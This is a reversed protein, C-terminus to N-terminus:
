LLDIIERSMPKTTSPYVKLLEGKESILYKYFNWKPALDNWGNLSKDTLWKYVDNQDDGIVSIKEAMLFTVDYKSKCFNAIEENTGPEQHNFNNAPFGLVALKDKYQRHLKELDEYQPTFGCKSAVNVVLVKKGKFQSFSVTSGDITKFSYDYISKTSQASKPKEPGGLCNIATVSLVFALLFNLNHNM